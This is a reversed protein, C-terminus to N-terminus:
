DGPTAWCLELAANRDDPIRLFVLLNGAINPRVIGARGTPSGRWVSWPTGSVLDFLQFDTDDALSAAVYRTGISAYDVMSQRDFLLQSTAPGSLSAQRLMGWQLVNSSIEKWVVTDGRLAPMAAHGTTDLRRPPAQSMLDRVYVHFTPGGSEQEVTGYVLLHGDIAPSWYESVAPDSAAIVSRMGTATAYRLLEYRLGADPRHVATWVLDDGSMALFPLPSAEAGTVDSSDVLVPPAGVSPVYWLRWGADGYLRANQEVFAFRGDFAVVPLLNSDREPNRFAVEPAADAPRYRYLDPAFKINPGGGASWVIETGDSKADLLSAGSPGNIVHVEFPWGPTGPTQTPTAPTSSGSPNAPSPSPTATCAAVLIGIAIGIGARFM